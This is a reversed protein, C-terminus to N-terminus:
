RHQQCLVVREHQRWLNIKAEGACRTPPRPDGARHSTEVPPAETGHAPSNPLERNRLGVEGGDCPLQDSYTAGFPEVQLLPRRDPAPGLSGHRLSHRELSHASGQRDNRQRDLLGQVPVPDAALAAYVADVRGELQGLRYDNLNVHDKLFTNFYTTHKM